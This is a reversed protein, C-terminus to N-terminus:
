QDLKLVVRGQLSCDDMERFTQELQDMPRIEVHSKVIGRAAMDLVDIADKRTGVSSAIIRLDREIFTGPDATTIAKRPGEPIGLCVVTGGIQLFSLSQAYAANSATCVIVAAAGDRHGTAAKIDQALRESGEPGTYSLHDFFAEAGSEMALERKPSADVGIIRFGMGRGIQIALHGLGGGAGSIVVFDGPKAGCKALGAFVTVGGCLLPAALASDLGDPIPTVYHAPALVYQQFTGPTLYGSIKGKPCFADRGLLCQRCSGCIDAMYKIGARDGIQLGSNQTEPGLAVIVGVGEHGGIQGPPTPEPLIAWANLMVAMDSHCVGSHTLKVLVEGYGPRPTDITTVKASITGPKDFVVAKHQAPLADQPM